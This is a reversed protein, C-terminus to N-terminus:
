KNIVVERNVNRIIERIERNSKKGTRAADGSM